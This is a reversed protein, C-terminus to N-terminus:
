AQAPTTSDGCNIILTDTSRLLTATDSLDTSATPVTIDITKTTGDFTGASEGNKTITLTGETKGQVGLVTMTGDTAVNVVNVGTESSKVIGATATTAIPVSTLAGLDAATIEVPTSGDFTKPGATLASKVKGAQVVTGKGAAFTIDDSNEVIGATTGNAVQIGTSVYNLFVWTTGDFYYIADKEEDSPTFVVNVTVANWKVASEYTTQLQAVAAENIADQETEDAVTISIGDLYTYKPINDLQTQIAGTVGSLYGLETATVSSASVKGSADTVMARDGTLNTTLVTSIAGTIASTLQAATVEDAYALDGMDDFQKAIKGLITAITDGTAINTREEATTFAPTKGAITENSVTTAIDLSASGDFSAVTGTADGTLTVSIPTTLKDATIAKDVYGDESKENTAYVAKLMDGAGLDSLEEPTVIQKWTAVQGAVAILIYPKGTTTNIWIQGLDYAYDDATPAATGVVAQTDAYRLATYTSVGDGFKFRRTDNELCLEGKAPVPNNTRWNSATDNRLLIRGTINFEAM